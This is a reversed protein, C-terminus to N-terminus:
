IFVWWTQDVGEHIEENPFNELLAPTITAFDHGGVIGGKKVIKKSNAIDRSVVATTHDGDIWSFDFKMGSGLLGEFALDSEMELVKVRDRYVDLCGFAHAKSLDQWEQPHGGEFGNGERFKWPDVTFLRANPCRLLITKTLDARWCGIELGVIDAGKFHKELLDVVQEHHNM